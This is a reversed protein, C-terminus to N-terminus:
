QNDVVKHRLLETLEQHSANEKMPDELLRHPLALEAAEYIDELQVMTRQKWAALTQAATIVTIDARHSEIGLEISLDAVAGILVDDIEVTPLLKQAWQIQEKLEWQDQEYRKEFAEQNAEFNLRRRIVEMREEVKKESEINVCLGFRDLLQPRLMGEEPNMTGVLVFRSSHEYSVGEREIRNVGMAATDLLIDVLHDELLNVEDVYLINGDAKALIGPELKKEGTKLIHEMDLTGVVRDETASVPLNVVSIDPLADALARVATSKATGKEGQILVGGIKPNIGNIILAKKMKEQGVIATFPYNRM